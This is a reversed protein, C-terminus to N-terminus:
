SPGGCSGASSDGGGTGFDGGTGCGFNGGGGSFGSDSPPVGMDAPPVIFTGTPSSWFGTRGIQTRGTAFRWVWRLRSVLGAAILVGFVIQFLHYQIWDNM